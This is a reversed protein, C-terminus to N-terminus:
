AASLGEQAREGETIPEAGRAPKMRSGYKNTYVQTVEAGFFLIQASYYIWILIVILSGAAGYATGVSSRGLYLGILFKGIAFLLATIAAGIWVDNWSIEVDPLVKYILAFLLTVVGFSVVFNIIELIFPPLPLAGGLYKGLAAMGASVVLSVLLLFGVGLVMAMSLFRDKFIGAVGRGPKPKVEWVTNLGDQLAGFVGSAGLLLILTGILTSIIGTAPKNSNAIIDQIVQASQGGVLDKMQAALQGTAAERGFVVGAIGLLVILLPALSIASYYSLAAALRSAKDESWDAYAAKFLELIVRPFM